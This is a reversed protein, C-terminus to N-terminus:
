PTYFGAITSAHASEIAARKLKRNATLLGNEISFPAGVVTWKRVRKYHPLGENVRAIGAEVVSAEVDGSVLACLYPRGHGVLVAQEVGEITEILKQEVPEPAVNHGSTPVLLNKVRGVIRWTRTDDQEAQDGTRFWGDQFAAETAEPRRWYGSFVNPGKILLEGGEGLKAEVGSVLPGVRGPYVEPPVDMTVIATTETLGYVQYVPIGLMQFWRQTDDGLPASGCILCDLNPGIQQKIKGFILQQGAWIALRDRRGGEGLAERVFGDRAREYLWQVAPPRERLKAEVGNKIRELLMPVNLLYNPAATKLEQALNDLNTSVMIPNARLLCTWLVVRSGAFCFPLYHFVRDPVSRAGMMAILADRTVPLMFDVNKVSYVVGKPVGSTGSTYIITVPDDDARLAPPEAPDIPESAFFQDFVLLPAEPWSDVIADALLDTSVVVLSPECDHMMGVLEAPDQRAYMPVVVAGEALAALDTAVWRIGNPAVLVVRDGAQVGRARLTARARATLDLVERGSGEVVTDGHVEKVVARSPHERLNDFFVDIFSM